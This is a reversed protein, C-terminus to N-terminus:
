KHQGNHNKFVHKVTKVQINMIILPYILPIFPFSSLSPSPLSPLSPFFSIHQCAPKQQKFKHQEFTKSCQTCAWSHATKSKSTWMVFSFTALLFNFLVSKCVASPYWYLQIIQMLGLPLSDTNCQKIIACTCDLLM